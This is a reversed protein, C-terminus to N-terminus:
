RREKTTTNAPLAGAPKNAQPAAAAPLLAPAPRNIPRWDGDPQPPKPPPSQCGAMVALLAALAITKVSSIM